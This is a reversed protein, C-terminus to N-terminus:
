GVDAAWLPLHCIKHPSLQSSAFQNHGRVQVATTSLCIGLDTRLLRTSGLYLDWTGVVAGPLAMTGAIGARRM